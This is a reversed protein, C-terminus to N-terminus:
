TQQNKETLKTCSSTESQSPTIVWAIAAASIM